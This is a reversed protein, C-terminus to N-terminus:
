SMSLMSFNEVANASLSLHIHKRVHINELNIEPLGAICSKKHTNFYIKSSFFKGCNECQLKPKHTRQHFSFTSKQNFTRKCGSVKCEYTFPEPHTKRHTIHDDYNKTKMTCGVYPCEYNEEHPAKTCRKKHFKLNSEYNFIKGCNRCESKARHTQRHSSLSSKYNFTRGCGPVKCEYIFPKPHTKRHSIYEMRNKTKMTCGVYPCEYNKQNPDKTCRKRHTSLKYKSNFNKGCDECKLKTPRHTEQHYAFTSQCDFTRGCGPVRCGYIFPKPHTKRHAIYEKRNKTKM